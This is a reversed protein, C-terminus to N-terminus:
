SAIDENEEQKWRKKSKEFINEKRIYIFISKWKWVTQSSLHLAIKGHGSNLIWNHITWDSKTVLIQIKSKQNRNQIQFTYKMM